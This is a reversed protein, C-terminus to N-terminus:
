QIRAPKLYAPVHSQTTKHAQSTQGFARLSTHMWVTCVQCSVCWVVASPEM